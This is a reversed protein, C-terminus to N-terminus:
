GINEGYFKDLIRLMRAIIRKPSLIGAVLSLVPNNSQMSRQWYELSLLELKYTFSALLGRRLKFDLFDLEDVGKRRRKFCDLAYYSYLLNHAFNGISLSDERVTIDYLYEPCNQLRFGESLRLYLDVEEALKFKERYGNLQNLAETRFMTAGQIMGRLGHRLELKILNNSIPVTSKGIAIGTPNLYRCNCSCAGLKPDKNILSLQKEFRNSCSVDDSDARAIISINHEVAFKLGMNMAVSPGSHDKEWIIVKKSEYRRAIEMSSDTSGDDIILLLFDQYSQNLISLIAKEIYRETNYLPMVVLIKM